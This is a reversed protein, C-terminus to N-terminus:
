SLNEREEPTGFSTIVRKAVEEMKLRENRSKKHIYKYSAAESFDLERMLIGKAVEIFKRRELEEQLNAVRQELGVLETVDEVVALTGIVEGAHNLLPLYKENTYGTKGKPTHYPINTREIVQGGLADRLLEDVGEEILHPFVEFPAKGLMEHATYGSIEEMTNNWSTIRFDRDFTVLGDNISHIVNENFEKLSRIVEEARKRDTIDLATFTVGVSLDEPDLVTSSLLVDIVEGDKRQWRTEVTGTGSHHIQAYKERGVFEYDEDTPYLMRAENGLLEDRSYGLMACLQDNVHSMVRNTAMGIGVPAARLISKVESTREEVLEELHDRHKRLEEEARKRETIDNVLVFFGKVKGQEGIHPIYTADIVRAGGDKYPVVEEYTVEQGSLAAEIYGRIKEYAKDGLVDRVHRGHVEERSHGFWQEYAINNFRYCLNSDVYSILVPLADTLLRLQKESERLADDTRKRETIDTIVSTFGMLQGQSDRKYNWAVQVDIIKGDKTRKRGFYDVPTHQERVLLKFYERLEKQESATAVLDFISKGVLEGEDYGYIKHLSDNAFLIRGSTDIDEIGHPITEVLLRHQEESEWLAKATHKLETDVAELEAIRQRMEALEQVRQEKTKEEVKM